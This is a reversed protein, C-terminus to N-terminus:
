AINTVSWHYERKLHHLVSTRTHILDSTSKVKMWVGGAGGSDGDDGDAFSLFFEQPSETRRSSL